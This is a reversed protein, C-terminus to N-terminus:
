HLTPGRSGCIIEWGDHEAEDGTAAQQLDGVADAAAEMMAQAVELLDDGLMHLLEPSFRVRLLEEGRPRVVAGASEADDSEEWSRGAGPSPRQLVIDGNDLQLLELQQETMVNRGDSQAHPGGGPAGSRQVAVPRADTERM